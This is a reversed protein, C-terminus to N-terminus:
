QLAQNLPKGTAQDAQPHETDAKEAMPDWNSCVSDASITAMRNKEGADTGGNDAAAHHCAQQPAKKGKFLEHLFSPDTPCFFM